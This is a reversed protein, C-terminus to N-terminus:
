CPGNYYFSALIKPFMPLLALPFGHYSMCRDLRPCLSESTQHLHLRVPKKELILGRETTAGIWLINSVDLCVDGMLLVKDKSELAKLLSDMMSPSLSHIEDIFFVTKPCEYLPCGNRKGILKLEGHVNKIIDFISKVNIIQNSDTEVFEIELSSALNRAFKTKGTSPPGNFLIAQNEPMGLELATAIIPLIQNVAEAQGVTGFFSCKENNIDTKEKANKKAFKNSEDYDSFVIEETPKPVVKKKDYSQMLIDFISLDSNIEDVENFIM